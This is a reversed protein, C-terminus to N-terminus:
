WLWRGDEVPGEVFIVVGRRAAVPDVDDVGITGSRDVAAAARCDGTQAVSLFGHDFGDDVLGALHGECMRREERAVWCLLKSPQEDVFAGIREGFDHEKARARFCDLRGDLYRALVVYRSAFRFSYVENASLVSVMAVCKPRKGCAKIRRSSLCELREQRRSEM